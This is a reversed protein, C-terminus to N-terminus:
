FSGYAAHKECVVYYRSSHSGRTVCPGYRPAKSTYGVAYCLAM